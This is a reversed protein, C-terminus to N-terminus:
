NISTQLLIFMDLFISVICCKMTIKSCQYSFTHCRISFTFKLIIEQFNYTFLILYVKRCQLFFTFKIQYLSKSKGWFLSILYFNWLRFLFQSIRANFSLLSVPWNWSSLIWRWEKSYFSPSLWLTHDIFHCM